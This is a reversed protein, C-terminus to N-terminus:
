GIRESPTLHRDILVSKLEELTGSFLIQGGIASGNSSSLTVTPGTDVETENTEFRVTLSGAWSRASVMLGSNKTGLRSALGRSGRLNGYFHAM